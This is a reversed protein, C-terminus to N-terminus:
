VLLAFPRVGAGAGSADCALVRVGFFYLHFVYAVASSSEPCSSSPLDSVWYGTNRGRLKPHLSFAALQEGGM